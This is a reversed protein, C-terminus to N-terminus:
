KREQKLVWDIISEEDFLVSGGGHYNYIERQNFWTNDPIQLQLLEKIEADPLGSERYAALLHGYADRAKQSGYYEDNEAMFIYVGVRNEAVSEYSGDWQSAGHIYAAYLDPRLSVAQSM